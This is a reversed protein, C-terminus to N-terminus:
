RPERLAHEMRQVWRGPDLLLVPLGGHEFRQGIRGRADGGAIPRAEHFPQLSLGARVHLAIHQLPPRLRVLCPPTEPPADGVTPQLDLVTIVSGRWETLGLVEPPAGPVAYCIGCEALGAVIEARLAFRQSGLDLLLVRAPPGPSRDSTSPAEPTDM